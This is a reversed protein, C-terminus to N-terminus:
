EAKVGRDGFHLEGGKLAASGPFTNGKTNHGKVWGL